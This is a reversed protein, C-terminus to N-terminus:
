RELGFLKPNDILARHAEIWEIFHECRVKLEELADSYNFGYDERHFEYSRVVCAEGRDAGAELAKQLDKANSTVEVVDYRFFKPNGYGMQRVCLPYVLHQANKKFKWPEYRHTVKIDHISVPMLEDLYGYLKVLGYMTPVEGEVYLQPVADFAYISFLGDIVGRPVEYRRGRLVGVWVDGREVTETDGRRWDLCREDVMDNVATGLDAYVSEFPKRNLSDLFEQLQEARWEELTKSPNESFGWIQEWLDDSGLYRTFSDLLSPYIQYRYMSM